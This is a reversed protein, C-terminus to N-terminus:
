ATFGLVLLLAAAGALVVMGVARNFAYWESPEVDGEVYRGVNWRFVAEPWWLEVFLVALLVAAALAALPQGRTGEKQDLMWSVATVNNMSLPTVQELVGDDGRIYTEGNSTFSIPINVDVDGDGTWLFSGSYYGSFIEEGDRYLTLNERDGELEFLTQGSPCQLLLQAGKGTQMKTVTLREGLVKGQWRNEEVRALFRDHYWMGPQMAAWVYALLLLVAVATGTLIRKREVSLEKWAQLM